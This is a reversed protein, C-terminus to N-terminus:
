SGSTSVQRITWCGSFRLWFPTEIPQLFDIWSGARAVRFTWIGPRRGGARHRAIYEGLPITGGREREARAEALAEVDEDTLPEDDLPANLAALVVPDALQALAERAANLRDDPIADLITHLEDRAIM